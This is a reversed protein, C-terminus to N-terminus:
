TVYTYMGAPHRRLAPCGRFSLGFLSAYTHVFDTLGAPGARHEIHIPHAADRTNISYGNMHVRGRSSGCRVGGCEGVDIDMDVDGDGVDEGYEAAKLIAADADGGTWLRRHHMSVYDDMLSGVAEGDDMSLLEAPGSLPPLGPYALGNVPQFSYHLSEILAHAIAPLCPLCMHM